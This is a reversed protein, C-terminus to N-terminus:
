EVVSEFTQITEEITKEVSMDANNLVAQPVPPFEQGDIWSTDVAYGFNNVEIGYGAAPEIDAFGQEVQQEFSTKYVLYAGGMGIAVLALGPLINKLATGFNESM